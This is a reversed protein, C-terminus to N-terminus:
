NATSTVNNFLGCDFWGYEMNNTFTRGLIVGLNLGTEWVLKEKRPDQATLNSTLRVQRSPLDTVSTPHKGTLATQGVSMMIIEASSLLLRLAFIYWMLTGDEWLRLIFHM